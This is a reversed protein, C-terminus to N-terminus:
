LDKAGDDALKLVLPCKKTLPNIKRFQIDFCHIAYALIITMLIFIYPSYAWFEILPVHILYVYFSLNSLVVLSSKNEIRPYWGMRVIYIGLGFEFLRCPAFWTDPRDFNAWALSHVWLRCIISIIFLSVISIHPHWRIIKDLIPYLLYLIVILGIFWYAYNINNGWDSGWGYFYVWFGSVLRIIRVPSLDLTATGVIAISLIASMWYAPYLRIVRKLLYDKFNEISNIMQNSHALGAGSAFIFLSVGLFGWDVWVIGPINIGLVTNKLSSYYTYSVHNWVVM